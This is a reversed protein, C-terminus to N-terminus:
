PQLFASSFVDSDSVSNLKGTIGGRGGTLASSCTTVSLGSVRISAHCLFSKSRVLRFENNDSFSRATAILNYQGPIPEM